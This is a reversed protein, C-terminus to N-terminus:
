ASLVLPRDFDYTPPAPERGAIGVAMALAQLGDIRARARRKNLKRAGTPDVDVVANSFNWRLVPNGGHRLKHDIVLDELEDLAPAMDKYGQGWEKLPLVIGEEDCTKKFDEIRWRDFAVAILDYPAVIEAIRRAVVRKDVAKGAPAEILKQDRWLRYPVGRDHNEREDLDTGPIWFHSLVAGTDPFYLVFSTLDRTSSLDLGGFCREGKLTDVDIAGDCAQWDIGSIYVASADIRQNLYLNRFVAERAPLRKAKAAYGRMEDLSRFDDLAPNALKWVQEDWIDATEPAEFIFGVFSPDDVVGANVDKAYDTLESMIHKPDSTQTSIIWVLPETRAGTSTELVDFLRRDPAQALEDYAIFSASFGHKNHSDASLAVYISGTVADTIEKNFDRIVIRSALEPSALAMAKMERYLISAQSRDCAASYVQGRPEAEPGCLHALALAAVLGSKGNKRAVTLLATRVLRRGDEGVPDYVKRIIDKQWGRLRFQKGADPGATITLSQVFRIVRESRSLRARKWSARRKRAKPAPKAATKISRAGPGRLGL